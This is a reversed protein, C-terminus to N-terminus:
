IKKLEDNFKRQRSYKGYRNKMNINRDKCNRKKAM